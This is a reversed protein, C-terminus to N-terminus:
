NYIKNYDDESLLRWIGYGIASGLTNKVLDDLEFVGFRCILQSLEIMLSVLLGCCVALWWKIEIRHRGKCFFDNVAPLLYGFPIFLIMNLVSRNTTLGYHCTLIARLFPLPLRISVGGLGSIRSLGVIYVLVLFYFISALIPFKRALLILFVLGLISFFLQIYM